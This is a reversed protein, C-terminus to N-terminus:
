QDMSSKYFTGGSRIEDQKTRVMFDKTVVSFLTSSILTVRPVITFDCKEANIDLNKGLTEFMILTNWWTQLQLYDQSSSLLHVMGPASKGKKKEQLIRLDPVPLFLLSGGLDSCPKRM